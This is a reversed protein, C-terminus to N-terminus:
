QLSAQMDSQFDSYIKTVARDFAAVADPVTNGNLEEIVRYEKLLVPTAKDQQQVRLEVIVSANAQDSMNIREFSKLRGFISIKEGAGPETIVMSASNVARLYTVLQGQLLRPPSTIWFHYHYQQLETEGSEGTYLLARENYLGEAIFPGVYIIDETVPSQNVNQPTSLRYFRDTPVPPVSSCSALVFLLILIGLRRM